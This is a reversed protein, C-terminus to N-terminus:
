LRSRLISLIFVFDLNRCRSPTTDSQTIAATPQLYFSVAAM